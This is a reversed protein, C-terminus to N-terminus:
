YNGTTPLWSKGLKSCESMISQHLNLELDFHLSTVFFGDREVGRALYKTSFFSIRLRPHSAGHHQILCVGDLMIDGLDSLLIGVRSSIDSWGFEATWASFCLFRTREPTQEKDLM